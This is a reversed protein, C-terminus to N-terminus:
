RGNTFAIYEEMPMMLSNLRDLTKTEIRGDSMYEQGAQRALALYDACMKQIRESKRYILLSSEACTVCPCDKGFIRRFQMKCAGFNDDLSPFAGSMFLMYKEKADCFGPHSAHGADDMVIAPRLWPMMRDLLAKMPAPFGFVYLPASWIVLESEHMQEYISKVDDKLICQGPTRFWCAFDAKCYEIKADCIHITKIQCAGPAADQMGQLFAKSIKLTISKERRTSANLLLIKM